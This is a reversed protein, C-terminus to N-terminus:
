KVITIFDPENFYKMFERDSSAKRAFETDLKISEILNKYLYATDDMRAGLVSRLYYTQANNPACDLTAKAAATEGKLMQALGLNYDCKANGMLAIAEDYKGDRIALTGLNYNQDLGLSKAKTFYQAATEYDKQIAAVIGLNNIVVGQDPSIKNADELFVKANAINGKEMEICGANNYAQWLKPYVSIANKLIKLKADLNDTLEAAAYLIEKEDLEAPDTTALLSIDADSKKPEFCNVAVEARRLPPLIEEGLEPYVLIMNRIEQERKAPDSSNVINLIINKDKMESGKVAKMFGNWDPGNGKSSFNISDITKYAVTSKKSKAYGRMKRKMYSLAKNARKESLGENFTEEGEPSAWGNITVDKISWGKKVFDSVAVMEDKTVDAKNLGFRFNLNALNVPFFIHYAETVITQKEYLSPTPEANAVPNTLIDKCTTIVGDAVKKEGVRLSKYNTTIESLDKNADVPDKPIYATAIVFLESISMEPTYTIVDEYEFSTGVKYDVIMGDGETSQGRFTTSKCKITDGTATVLVPEFLMAAKKTFYKEPFSGSIKIAIEDGVTELPDPSTKIIITNFEKKMSNLNGSEKFNYSVGISNYNYHDQVIAVTKRPKTDLGDTDGMRFSTEIKLDINEAISYKIGGGIPIMGIFFRGGIGNGTPQERNGITIDEYGRSRLLVDTDYDYWKTQYQTSGIGTWVYIGWKRDPDYNFIDDIQFVFDIAGDITNGETKTKWIDNNWKKGYTSSRVQGTYTLYYLEGRVGFWKSFQWGLIAGGGFGWSDKQPAIDYETIDAHLLNAGGNIGFYWYKELNAKSKTGKEQAMLTFPIIMVLGLIALSSVKKYFGKM